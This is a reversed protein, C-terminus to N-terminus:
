EYFPQEYSRLFETVEQRMFTDPIDWGMRIRERVETGSISVKKEKGHPCTKETSLHGCETCYSADQYRLIDISLDHPELTDFIEQAAYASYFKGVGAHDRWVIMLSCGYNQRIIAHLIAERPWAYRMIIPLVALFTRDGQYYKELLKEYAWLICADHFDWSKKRGIVPHILLADWQELACKQIYEHSRHPPNRTQFAVVRKWGREQFISRLTRPSYFYQGISTEFREKEYAEIEGSVLYEGM